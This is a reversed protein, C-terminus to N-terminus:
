KDGAEVYRNITWISLSFYFCAIVLQLIVRFYLEQELGLRDVELWKIINLDFVSLRDMLFTFLIFLIIELIWRFKKQVFQKIASYICVLFQIILFLVIVDVTAALGELWTTDIAFPINIIVYNTMVGIIVNGIFFSVGVIVSFVLNYFYLTGTNVPLLRFDTTRFFQYIRNSELVFFLLFFIMISFVLFAMSFEVSHRGVSYVNVLGLLFTLVLSISYILFLTKSFFLRFFKTM